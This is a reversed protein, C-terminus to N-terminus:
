DNPYYKKLTKTVKLITDEHASGKKLLPILVNVHVGICEAAETYTRFRKVFDLLQAMEAELLWVSKRKKIGNKDLHRMIPTKVSTDQM